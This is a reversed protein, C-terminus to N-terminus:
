GNEQGGPTPRHRGPLCRNGVDVKGAAPRLVPIVARLRPTAARLASIVEGGSSELQRVQDDTLPEGAQNYAQRPVDDKSAPIEIGDDLYEQVTEAPIAQKLIEETYGGSTGARALRLSEHDDTPMTEYLVWPVPTKMAEALRQKQHSRKEDWSNWLVPVLTVRNGSVETVQFEGLYQPGLKPENGNPPAPARQFAFLISGKDIGATLSAPDPPTAAPGGEAGVDGAADVDVTQVMPLLRVSVAGNEPNMDGDPAALQWVRGQVRLIAQLRSQLEVIGPDDPQGYELTQNERELREIEALERNLRTRYYGHVRLTEAALVLYLVGFMFIFAVITVHGWHWRKGSFYAIILMALFGVGLLIMAILNADM